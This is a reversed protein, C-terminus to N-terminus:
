RYLLPSMLGQDPTRNGGRASKRRQDRLWLKAPVAVNDRSVIGSQGSQIPDPEAVTFFAHDIGFFEPSQGLLGSFQQFNQLCTPM